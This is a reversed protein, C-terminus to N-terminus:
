KAEDAAAVIPGVQTPNKNSHGRVPTRYPETGLWISPVQAQESRQSRDLALWHAANVRALRKGGKERVGIERTDATPSPPSAVEGKCPPLQGEPVNRLASETRSALSKPLSQRM